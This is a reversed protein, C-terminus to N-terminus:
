RGAQRRGVLALGVLPALMVTAFAAAAGLSLAAVVM